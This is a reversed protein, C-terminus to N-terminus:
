PYSALYESFTRTDFYFPKVSVIKGDVLDFQEAIAMVIEHRSKRTRFKADFQVIVRTAAANSLFVPSGEIDVDVLANVKSFMQKWQEFGVYRGGYPLGAAQTYIAGTSVLKEVAILDHQKFLLEFYSEVVRRSNPSEAAATSSASMSFALTVITALITAPSICKM